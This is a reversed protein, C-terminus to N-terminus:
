IQKAMNAALRELAPSVDDPKLHVNLISYADQHALAAKMSQQLEGFTKVEFGWGAGLLDPM